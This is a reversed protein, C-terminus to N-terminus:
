SKSKALREDLKCLGLQGCAAAIERGKGFREVFPIGHKRLFGKFHRYEEDTPPSLPIEDVPNYRILNLHFKIGQLSRKMALVDEEQSNIGNLLVYEFTIRRDIHQQYYKVADLINNVSHTRAVPMLVKRKEQNVSNLSVALRIQLGIEALEKIKPAIGATSITIHRAGIHFGGSFALIGIAKMVNEFNLLPEGMGMFVINTVARGPTERKYKKKAYRDMLLIQSVIEGASLNRKYDLRGTACFNCGLPCGIQSSVCVTLREPGLTETEDDIEGGQLLVSEIYHGDYTRFLFKVSEGSPDAQEEVPELEIVKYWDKLMPRLDKPLDTMQEFDFVSRRYIWGFVPYARSPQVNNAIFSNKLEGFTLELLNDM